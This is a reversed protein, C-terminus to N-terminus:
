FNGSIQRFITVEQNRAAGVNKYEPASLQVAGDVGIPPRRERTNEKRGTSM